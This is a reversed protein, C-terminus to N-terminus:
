VAERLVEQHKCTVAHNTYTLGSFIHLLNSIQITNKNRQTFDLTFIKPITEISDNYNLQMVLSM